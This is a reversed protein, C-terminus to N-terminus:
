IVIDTVELRKMNYSISGLYYLETITEHDHLNKGMKIVVNDSCTIDFSM